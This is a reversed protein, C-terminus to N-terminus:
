AVKKGKNAIEAKEAETKERKAEVADAIKVFPIYILVSLTLNIAQIVPGQWAFGTAFLGSLIPPTTWPIVYSVAPLFGLATAGYAISLSIVPALLFPVIFIPNLVIPLGFLVPENINFLSPAAGLRGIMRNQKSKGVMILAIVLGLGVGVGGMYVFADAFSKNFILIEGVGGQAIALNNEIATANFTQLIGEFMNAGHIGFLWFLHTLFVVILGFGFQGSVFTLSGMIADRVWDLINVGAYATILTSVGVVITVTALTPILAAFSRSVAPPVSAPMKIIMKKNRSLRVFIETTILALIIAMFLAGANLYGWNLNGWLGGANTGDELIMNQSMQPVICLYTSLSVVAASIPNIEYSKALHYAISIVAFITLLGFTGWWINGNLMPIWKLAPFQGLWGGLMPYQVSSPDNTLPINNILTVLSGLIMLPMITVFGDRIAGLHRQRGIAGAITAFRDVFSNFVRRFISTSM